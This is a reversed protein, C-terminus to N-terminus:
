FRAVFSGALLNVWVNIGDACASAPGSLPGTSINGILAQTSANFLTVSDGSYNSIIIRAGDFTAMYPDDIRNFSDAAITAIVTGNSAQVISVSESVNSPVWINTGDFTPELPGNGVAVSQVINGSSDLKHLTNAGYDSVWINSGDFIIGGLNGSFGATVNQVPYPATAQVTIISVSGGENATWIRSGDFAISVVTGALGSAVQVAPGPPSGTPDFLSVTTPGGLYIRGRAALISKGIAGGAGTWTGVMKGTSAEVQYISGSSYGQFWVYQGDGVCAVPRDGGPLAFQQVANVNSPTWWQGLAARPDTRKLAQDFTRQLFTTMQVRTVNSNPAFTTATAGKTIGVTYAEIIGPCFPAGVGSVDTFPFPYTQGGCM